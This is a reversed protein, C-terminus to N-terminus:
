GVTSWGFVFADKRYLSAVTSGVLGTMIHLGTLWRLRHRISFDTQVTITANRQTPAGNKTMYKRPKPLQVRKVRGRNSLETDLMRHAVNVQRLTIWDTFEGVSVKSIFQKRSERLTRRGDEREDGAEKCM